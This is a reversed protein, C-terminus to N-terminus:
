VYKESQMNRLFFEFYHYTYMGQGDLLMRIAALLKYAVHHDAQKPLASLLLTAARGNAAATRKNAAPVALNRLASLSAHQIRTLTSNPAEDEASELNLHNEFIDTFYIIIIYFIYKPIIFM